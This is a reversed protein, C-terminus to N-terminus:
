PGSMCPFVRVEIQLLADRMAPDEVIVAACRVAAGRTGPPPTSDRHLADTLTRVVHTLAHGTCLSELIAKLDGDSMDLNLVM